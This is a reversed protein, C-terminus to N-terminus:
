SEREPSFPLRAVFRAGGEEPVEHMLTGGFEEMIGRSIHLGLGTGKGLPKTTFFPQFLSDIRDPAVGPGTDRFRVHCHTPDVVLNIFLVRVKSGEMADNANMILNVFVQVLKGEDAMVKPLPSPLDLRIDMSDKVRISCMRQAKRLAEEVELPRIMSTGSRAFSRLESTIQRIRSLGDKMESLIKPMEGVLAMARNRETEQPDQGLAAKVSPWLDEITQLNVALFSAPNNIEHGVSAALLGLTALRDSHVLQAARSDALAQMRCAYESITQQMALTRFGVEIRGLLVTPSYPKSVIDDAGSRLAALVEADETRSTVLLLYYNREPFAKRLRRFTQLGDIGPLGWDLLAMRPGDERSLADLAAHGDACEEVSYGWKEVIRRLMIRSAPDDEAMCIHGKGPIARPLETPM